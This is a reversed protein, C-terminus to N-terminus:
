AAEATGLAPGRDLHVDLQPFAIVIGAAHLEDWIALLLESRRKFKEWPRDIWVSVEFDVSSAGFSKLLVLPRQTALRGTVRTGARELAAMAEDLNTDYSVGVTGTLRYTSDGLTHNKVSAQVLASNPVILDEEYLTRVITSRIGM